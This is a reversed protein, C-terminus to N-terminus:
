GNIKLIKKTLATFDLLKENGTRLLLLNKNSWMIKNLESKIDDLDDFIKIKSTGFIKREVKASFYSSKTPLVCVTMTNNGSIKPCMATPASRWASLWNACRIDNAFQRLQRM